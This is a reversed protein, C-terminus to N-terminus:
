ARAFRRGAVWRGALWVALAAALPLLKGEGLIIYVAAVLAAVAALGADSGILAAAWGRRVPRNPGTRDALRHALAMAAVAHLALWPASVGGISGILPFHVTAFGVWREPFLDATLTVAVGLAVGAALPRPLWAWAALAPLVSHTLGSRHDLLPLYLDIDPFWLGLAAGFLLAFPRVAPHGLDAARRRWRRAPGGRHPGRRAPRM